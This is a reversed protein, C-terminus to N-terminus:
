PFHFLPSSPMISNMIFQEMSSSELTTQHTLQETRTMDTVAPQTSHSIRGVKIYNNLNSLIIYGRLNTILTNYSSSAICKNVSYIGPDHIQGVDIYLYM